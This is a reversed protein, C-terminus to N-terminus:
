HFSPLQLQAKTHQPPPPLSPPIQRVWYQMLELTQNRYIFTKACITKTELFRSLQFVESWYEINIKLVNESNFDHFGLTTLSKSRCIVLSQETQCTMIMLWNECENCPSCVTVLAQKANHLLTCILSFRQRLLMQYWYLARNCKM